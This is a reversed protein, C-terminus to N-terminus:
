REYLWYICVGSFRGSENDLVNEITLKEKCYALLVTNRKGQM